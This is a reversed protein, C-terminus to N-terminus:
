ADNSETFAILDEIIIYWLEKPVAEPDFDVYNDNYTVRVSTSM